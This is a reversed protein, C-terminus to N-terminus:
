IEVKAYREARAKVVKGLDDAYEQFLRRTEAPDNLVGDLRRITRNKKDEIQLLSWLTRAAKHDVLEVGKPKTERLIDSLENIHTLELLMELNELRYLDRYESTTYIGMRRAFVMGEADPNVDAVGIIEPHHEAFDGNQLFEIFVRCFEGGGVIALKSKLLSDIM